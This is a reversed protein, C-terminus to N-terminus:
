DDFSSFVDDFLTKGLKEQRGKSSATFARISARAARIGLIIATVTCAFAGVISLFLMLGPSTYIVKDIFLDIFSVLANVGLLASIIWLAAIALGTKM